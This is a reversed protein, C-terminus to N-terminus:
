GRHHSVSNGTRLTSSEEAAAIAARVEERTAELTADEALEPEAPGM